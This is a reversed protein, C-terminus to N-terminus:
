EKEMNRDSILCLEKEEPFDPNRGLGAPQILAERERTRQAHEVGRAAM